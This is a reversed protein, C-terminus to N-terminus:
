EKCIHYSIIDTGAGSGTVGPSAVSLRNRDAISIFKELNFNHLPTDFIIDDLVVFIRSYKRAFSPAITKMFHTYYGGPWRVIDCRRSLAEIDEKSDQWFAKVDDDAYIFTVCDWKNRISTKLEEDVM